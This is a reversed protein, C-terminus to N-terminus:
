AGAAALADLLRRLAPADQTAALASQSFTARRDAPVIGAALRDFKETVAAVEMRRAPDGEADTVLREIVSGDALRVVVRAPWLRPYFAELGAEAVVEVRSAFGAIAPEEGDRSRAIDFLDEPAIAAVALLYAMGTLRDTRSAVRRHGIMAQYAQPVAVTVGAIDAPRVGTALIQRFGDLGAQTQKAACIPKMSLDGVSGDEPIPAQLDAPAIGHVRTLWDGDLLSRDGAFGCSAAQAALVGARAAEGAMLWRPSAGAAAGGHAGPGGSIRCLATALADATPGAPLRRLRAAVAAAGLPALLYTPWIGRYLLAPGALAMGLWTMVGYGAQLAAALDAPTVPLSAALTLAVPGVIAGPTTCSPPHIDDIETARATGVRVVLPDLGALRRLEAAEPLATGALLAGVVDLLHLRLRAETAASVPAEAVFTALRELIAM